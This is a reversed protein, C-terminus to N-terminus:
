SSARQPVDAPDQRGRVAPSRSNLSAMSM